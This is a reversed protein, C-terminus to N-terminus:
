SNFRQQLKTLFMHLAKIQKEPPPKLRRKFPNVDVVSIGCWIGIISGMCIVLEFFSYQPKFIQLYVPFDTSSVYFSIVNGKYEIPLRHSLKGDSIVTSTFIYETDSFGHNRRCVQSCLSSANKLLSNMVPNSRDTYTIYRLHSPADFISSHTLNLSYFRQNICKGICKIHLINTFGEDSYPPNLITRQFKIYSAVHWRNEENRNIVKPSWIYSLEPPRGNAEGIVVRIRKKMLAAKVGIMFLIKPYNFKNILQERNWKLKKKPSYMYCVENQAVFKQMELQKLCDEERYYTVLVRDSAKTLDNFKRSDTLGFFRCYAVLESPDPTREFIKAISVNLFISRDVYFWDFAVSKDKHKRGTRVTDNCISLAYNTSNEFERYNEILVPYTLYETIVYNLCLSCGILCVIMLLPTRLFRMTRKASKLDLALNSSRGNVRSNIFINYTWRIQNNLNPLHKELFKMESQNKRAFLNMPNSAIFTFGLWFNLCCLIQFYFEYFSVRPGWRRTVSPSKTTQVAFEIEFDTRDLSRGIQTLTYNGECDTPAKIRNCKNELDRLYENITENKLDSYSLLSSALPRTHLGRFPLRNLSKLGEIYCEAHPVEVRLCNTDYPAPLMKYKYMEFSLVELRPELTRFSTASFDKSMHPLSGYFVALEIGGIKKLSAPPVISYLIGPNLAALKMTGSSVNEYQKKPQINYCMQLDSYFKTVEFEEGCQSVNLLEIAWYDLKLNRVRCRSVIKSDLTFEEFLQDLRLSMRKSAENMVQDVQGFKPNVSFNFYDDLKICLALNPLFLQPWLDYVITLQTEYKFYKSFVNVLQWILLVMTSVQFAFSALCLSKRRRKTHVLQDMKDLYRRCYVNGSAQNLRKRIELLIDLSQRFQRLLNNKTDSTGNLKAVSTYFSYGLWISALSLFEQLYVAFAFKPKHSMKSVPYRTTEVNFASTQDNYLNSNSTFILKYQCVKVSSCLKNCHTIIQSHLTKNILEITVAKLQYDQEELDFEKDSSYNFRRAMRSECNSWCEYRNQKSCDTDYPPPLRHIEFVEYDLDYKQHYTLSPIIEQSFLREAHPLDEDHVLALIAHGRDFPAKLDFRFLKGSDFFAHALMYFDYEKTVNLDLKYCMYIQMRYRKVNFFKACETGQKQWLVDREFDRYECKRLLEDAKPTNEFIYKTSKNIFSPVNVDFFSKHFKDTMLTDSNFCLSVKFLRVKIPTYMAFNTDTEYRLYKESLYFLNILFFIYCLLKYITEM